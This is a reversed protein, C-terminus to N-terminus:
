AGLRPPSIGRSTDGIGNPIFAVWSGMPIGLDRHALHFDRGCICDAVIRFLIFRYSCATQMYRRYGSERYGGLLEGLWFYKVGKSALVNMLAERNFWPYKRSVPFRRVDVVAKIGWRRLVQIFEDIARNSHGITYV